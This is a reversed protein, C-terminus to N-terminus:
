VLNGNVCAFHPRDGCSVARKRRSEKENGNACLVLLLFVASLFVEKNM